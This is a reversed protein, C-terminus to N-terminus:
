PAIMNPGRFLRSGRDHRHDLVRAAAAPRPRRPHRSRCQRTQRPHLASRWRAPCTKAIVTEDAEQDDADALAFVKIAVKITGGPHHHPRPDRRDDAGNKATGSFQLLVTVPTNGVTNRAVTFRRPSHLCVSIARVHRAPHGHHHSHGPFTVSSKGAFFCASLTCYVQFFTTWNGGTKM